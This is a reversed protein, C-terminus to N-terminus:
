FINNLNYILPLKKNENINVYLFPFFFVGKWNCIMFQYTIYTPYTSTIIYFSLIPGPFSTYSIYSANEHVKIINRVGDGFLKSQLLILYLWTFHEPYEWIRM